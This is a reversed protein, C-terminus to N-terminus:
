EDDKEYFFILYLMLMVMSLEMPLISYDMNMALLLAMWISITFINCKKKLSFIIIFGFFLTFCIGVPISFRLMENLFVNHANNVQAGQKIHIFFGNEYSIGIGGQNNKIANLSARWIDTRGGLTTVSREQAIKLFIIRAAVFVISGSVCSSIIKKRNSFNKVRPYLEYVIKGFLILIAGVTATNVHAIYFCYALIAVCLCLLIKSIKSRFRDTNMLLFSLFLLLMLAYESKHFYVWNFRYEGYFSKGWEQTQTVVGWNHFYISLYGMHYVVIGIINSIIISGIVTQFIHYKEFWVNNKGLVLLFLFPFSIIVSKLEGYWQISQINMIYSGAYGVTALLLLIFFPINMRNIRHNYVLWILYFIIFICLVANALIFEPYYAVNKFSSCRVPVFLFIIIYLKLANVFISELVRNM